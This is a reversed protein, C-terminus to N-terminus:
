ESNKEKGSTDNKIVSNDDTIEKPDKTKEEENFYKGVFSNSYKNVSSIIYIALILVAAIIGIVWIAAEL